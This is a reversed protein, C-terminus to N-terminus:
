SRNETKEAIERNRRLRELKQEMERELLEEERKIQDRIQRSRKMETRNSFVTALYAVTTGTGIFGVLIFVLHGFISDCDHMIGFYLSVGSTVVTFFSLMAMILVAIPVLAVLFKEMYDM